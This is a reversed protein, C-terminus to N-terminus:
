KFHHKSEISGFISVSRGDVEYDCYDTKVKEAIVNVWGQSAIGSYPLPRM